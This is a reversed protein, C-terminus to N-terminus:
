EGEGQVGAAPWQFMPRRNSVNAPASHITKMACDAANCVFRISPRWSPGAFLIKRAGTVSLLNSQTVVSSSCRISGCGMLSPSPPFGAPRAPRRPPWRRALRGAAWDPRRFSFLRRQYRSWRLSRCQAGSAPLYDLDRDEAGAGAAAAAGTAALNPALKSLLDGPILRAPRRLQKRALGCRPWSPGIYIFQISTLSEKSIAILGV